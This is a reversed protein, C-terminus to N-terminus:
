LRLFCSDFGGRRLPNLVPSHQVVNMKGPAIQVVNMKGPHPRCNDVGNQVVSTKRAREGHLISAHAKAVTPEM